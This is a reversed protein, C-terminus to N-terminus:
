ARHKLSQWSFHYLYSVVLGQLVSVSMTQLWTLVRPIIPATGMSVNMMTSKVTSVGLAQSFSFYCWFQHTFTLLCWVQFYVLQYWFHHFRVHSTLSLEDYTQLYMSILSFSFFFHLKKGSEAKVNKKEMRIFKLKCRPHKTWLLLNFRHLLLSDNKENQKEYVYEM